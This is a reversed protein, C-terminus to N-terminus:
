PAAGPALTADFRLRVQAAADDVEAELWGDVGAGIAAGRVSRRVTRGAHVAEVAPVARPAIFAPLGDADYPPRFALRVTVSAPQDSSRDSDGAATGSGTRPGSRRGAAVRRLRSPPMRYGASFAANFRRVSAFGSAGAVAAVSLATDTLLQKALLLRRTQLWALPTVGHEARFIRRLHRDSVGLRAAVAAVSPAEGAAAALAAAALADAAQCALTRSADMVSWPLGPGPAIEPRCKMCPRFAAAEAEAPTAFFRCNRQSPTRVRCIPRCYVGTSTVGIFLRGDFRADRALVARYAADADIPEATTSWSMVPM